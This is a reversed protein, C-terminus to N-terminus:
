SVKKFTITYNVQRSYDVASDKFIRVLGLAGTQQFGKYILAREPDAPAGGIREVRYAGPAFVAEVYGANTPKPVFELVVGGPLMPQAKIKSAKSVPISLTEPYLFFVDQTGSLAGAASLETTTDAALDANLNDFYCVFNNRGTIQSEFKNGTFPEVTSLLNTDTNELLFSFDVAHRLPRTPQLAGTQSAIKEIIILGGGPMAKFLMNHRALQYHCEPTPSLSMGPVPIPSENDQHIKQISISFLIDYRREM